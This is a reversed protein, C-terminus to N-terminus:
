EKMYDITIVTVLMGRKNPVCCRDFNLNNVCRPEIREHRLFDGLQGEDYTCRAVNRSRMETLEVTCEIRAPKGKIIYGERVLQKKPPVEKSATSQPKILQCERELASIDTFLAIREPIIGIKLARKIIPDDSEPNLHLDVKSGEGMPKGIVLPEFVTPGGDENDAIGNAKDLAANVLSCESGDPRDCAAGVGSYECTDDCVEREIVVTETAAENANAPNIWGLETLRAVGEPDKLGAAKVQGKTAGGQAILAKHLTDYEVQEEQKLESM